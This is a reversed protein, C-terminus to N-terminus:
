QLLYNTGRHVDICADEAGYNKASSTNRMVPPPPTPPTATNNDFFLHHIGECKFLVKEHLNFM